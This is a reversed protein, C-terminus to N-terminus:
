HVVVQVNRDIHFNVEMAIITAWMQPLTQWQHGKTHTVYNNLQLELNECGLKLSPHEKDCRLDQGRCRDVFPSPNEHDKGKTEDCISDM